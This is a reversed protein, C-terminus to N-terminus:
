RSFIWRYPLVNNGNKIGISYIFNLTFLLVCLIYLTNKTYKNKFKSIILPISLFQIQYFNIFIRSILPIMGLFMTCWFGIMHINKYINLKRDENVSKNLLFCALLLTANILPSIMSNETVKYYGTLYNGYKTGAFAISVVKLVTPILIYLVMTIILFRKKDIKMNAFFYVPIFILAIKHICTALLIMLVYKKLNKNEIYKVSYIFIVIAISQRVVNMAYFYFCSGILLFVSLPINNSQEYIAKIAFYVFLFSTVVFIWAYDKTFIQVIKNLLVYGYEINKYSDSELIKDFVPQYTYFYDQGVGYRLGMVLFLILFIFFKYFNRKKESNEKKMTEFGLIATSIAMSIYVIM